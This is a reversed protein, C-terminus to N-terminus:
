SGVLIVRKPYKLKINGGENLNVNKGIIGGTLSIEGYFSTYVLLLLILAFAVVAFIMLHKKIHEKKKPSKGYYEVDM